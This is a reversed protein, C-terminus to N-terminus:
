VTASAQVDPLWNLAWWYCNLMIRRSARTPRKTAWWPFVGVLQTCALDRYIVVDLWRNKPAQKRAVTDRTPERRAYVTILGSQAVRKQRGPSADQQNMSLEGQPHRLPTLFSSILFLVETLTSRSAPFREPRSPHLGMRVLRISANM